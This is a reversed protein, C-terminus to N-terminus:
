QWALGVELLWFVTDRQDPIESERGIRGRHERFVGLPGREGTCRDGEVWGSMM